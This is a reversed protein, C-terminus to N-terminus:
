VVDHLWRVSDGDAAVRFPELEADWEAGLWAEMATGPEVEGKALAAILSRVQQEGVVINGHADIEARYLGLAPTFSFRQGAGGALHETIEFRLQPIARLSSAVRAATGAVAQWDLDTRVLNPLIPQTRWSLQPRSGLAEELVWELPVTMAKTCAHVFLTGRAPISAKNAIEFM